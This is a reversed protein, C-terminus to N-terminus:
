MNISKQSRCASIGDEEGCNLGSFPIIASNLGETCLKKYTSDLSDCWKNDPTQGKKQAEIRLSIFCQNLQDSVKGELEKCTDILYRWEKKDSWVPYLASGYQYCAIKRRDTYQECDVAFNKSGFDLFQQHVVGAICWYMDNDDKFDNCMNVSETFNKKAAMYYHGLEHMCEKERTCIKKAFELYTDLKNPTHKGWEEAIGHFFGDCNSICMKSAQKLDYHSDILATRGIAHTKLHHNLPQESAFQLLEKVSGGRELFSNTSTKYCLYRQSKNRFKDCSLFVNETLSM